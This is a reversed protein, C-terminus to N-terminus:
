ISCILRIYRCRYYSRRAYEEIFYYINKHPGLYTNLVTNNNITTICYIDQCFFFSLLM